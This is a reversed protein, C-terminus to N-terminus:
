QFLDETFTKNLSATQLNNINDIFKNKFDDFNNLILRPEITEGFRAIVSPKSREDYQIKFAVPLVSTENKLDKLFIKLGPKLNLKPKDFPEIEGQPYIVVYNNKDQILSKTYAVTRSISVAKGPSISFAGLKKFFWYKELQDELMMIHLKRNSKERMLFDIFFGDWWSFHNPSVVLGNELNLQPFNNALYFSSFNKKLLHNLYPNFLFRAWYQHDAKIM